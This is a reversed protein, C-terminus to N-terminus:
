EEERDNLIFKEIVQAVGDEENSGTVYDAIAKVEPLANGMAVGLGAFRIMEEDNPSDGCAILEERKVQLKEMLFSLAEAKSTTEGGIEYNNAFSTTLTSEPIQDLVPRWRSKLEQTEFIININEIIGKNERMYEFINDVPTRTDRVYAIERFSSNGSVILDYEEKGIYTKRNIVAEFSIGTRDAHEFLGLTEMVARESIHNTYICRRDAMRTIDAGNSNIIYELGDVQFVEEPIADFARGTSIVVHVGKEMARHLARCTGPTIKSERNLTTGDLDLAVMKIQKM